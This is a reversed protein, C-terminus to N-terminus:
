SYAKNWYESASKAPAEGPKGGTPPIRAAPHNPKTETTGSNSLRATAAKLAAEYSKVFAIRGKGQEIMKAEPMDSTIEMEYKLQMDLVKQTAPDAPNWKSADLPDEGGTSVDAPEEELMAEQAANQKLVKVDADTIEKGGKRLTAVAEDIQKFRAQVKTERKDVMSQTERRIEEKIAALDKATVPRNEDIGEQSAPEQSQTVAERSQEEGSTQVPPQEGQGPIVVQKGDDSM